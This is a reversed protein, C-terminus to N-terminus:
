FFGRSYGVQLSAAFGTTPLGAFGKVEGVIGSDHDLAYMMGVGATAFMTGVKRWADVNDGDISGMNYVRVSVKGDFQAAGLGAVLFPRVGVRIFPDTGLWYSVRAEIHAPFFAKGGPAVPGAGLFAYGIRAGAMLNANLVRDYALLIRTTSQTLGSAVADSQALAKQGDYAADGMFCSYESNPDKCVDTAAPALLVDQQFAVGFWNKKPGACVGNNCWKGVECGTDSECKTEIGEDSFCSGNKCQGSQCEDDTECNSGTGKKSDKCGPFEPPCDTGAPGSCKKPAPKGPLHPPEGEVDAKIAVKLPASKTGSTAIVDGGSGIAQIYYKLDGPTSGIEHCPLEVGYGTKLRKMDLTKWDPAGFPKYKVVVKVPSMGDPLEAYLPLPTLTASETPPTHTIEDAGGGSPASPAPKAPAPAPAPAPGGKAAAFIQEIEPTILDKPPRTSPDAKLAEVFQAKAEDPRSAVVYVIGLDRHLQATVTPSCASTGCLALAQKLKKEADAFKTALYDNNIADDDLKLAQADRPGAALAATAAFLTCALAALVLVPLLLRRALPDRQSM